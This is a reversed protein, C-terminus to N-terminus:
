RGGPAAREGAVVESELAFLIPRHFLSAEDGLVFRSVADAETVRLRPHITRQPVDFALRLTDSQGPALAGAFPRRRFAGSMPDISPYDAGRDDVALVQFPVLDMAVRKADSRARVEVWWRTHGPAIALADPVRRASIVSFHLDCDLGCISKETGVPLVVERSSLSAAILAILYLGSAGALALGAIRAKAIHGRVLDVIVVLGGAALLFLLAFFALRGILQLV